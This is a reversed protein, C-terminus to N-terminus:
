GPCRSTRRLAWGRSELDRAIKSGPVYYREHWMGEGPEGAVPMRWTRVISGELPISILARPQDITRQIYAEAGEATSYRTAIRRYTDRWVDDEGTEHVIEAVGEVTVKRYPLPEEDITLAVRSDRRIHGLWASEARPTVFVKGSEYLYWMPAVYPAGSPQVTALRCIHGRENLFSEREELTMKPM